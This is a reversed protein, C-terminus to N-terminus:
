IISIAVSANGISTQGDSQVSAQGSLQVSAQGMAMISVQSTARSSGANNPNSMGLAITDIEFAGANNTSFNAVVNNGKTASIDISALPGTNSTRFIINDSPGGVLNSNRTKGTLNDDVNNVSSVRIQFRRQPM